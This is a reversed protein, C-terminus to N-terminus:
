SQPEPPETFPLQAFEAKNQLNLDRTVLIVASHPYRRTVELFSALVRDDASAADLWPLTAEFVPEVPVALLDSVGSVLPVGETLASRARYGKITRIMREAKERVAEVRHNVKLEDLERLVTPVLVIRFRPADAFQWKELAANYLLANTDPVYVPLGGSGDYCAAVLATAEALAASAKPEIEAVSEEWRAHRQEIVDVLLKRHEVLRERDSGPQERILTAILDLLGTV